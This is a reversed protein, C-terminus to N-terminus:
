QKEQQRMLSLLEIEANRIAEYYAQREREPVSDRNRLQDLRQNLKNIRQGITEEVTDM